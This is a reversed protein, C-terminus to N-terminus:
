EELSKKAAALMIEKEEYSMVQQTVPDVKETQGLHQKGLWIQLTANNHELANKWQARRLSIKGESAHKKYFEPFSSYGLEVVRNHITEVNVRLVTSIEEETCNIQCLNYIDDFTIEKRPRGNKNKSEKNM